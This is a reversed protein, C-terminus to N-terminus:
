NEGGTPKRGHAKAVAVKFDDVWKSTLLLENRNAGANFGKMSGLHSNSFNNKDYCQKRKLEARVEEANVPKEDLGKSRAGAVLAIVTRAQQTVSTGLDKTPPIVHVKGDATLNLIDRLDSEPEGSEHTLKSFFTDEDARAGPSEPPRAPSGEAPSAPHPQSGAAPPTATSALLFNIAEKFALEHLEDPIGAKEVASWARSLLEEVDM